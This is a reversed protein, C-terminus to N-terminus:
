GTANRTLRCNPNRVAQGFHMPHVNAPSGTLLVGDALEVYAALDTARGSPLLLPHCGAADRVADAYKRGVVHFPHGGLMRNDCPILVFPARASGASVSAPHEDIASRKL